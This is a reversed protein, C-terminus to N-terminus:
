SQHRCEQCPFITRCLYDFAQTSLSPQMFISRVKLIAAMFQSLGIVRGVRRIRSDTFYPLVKSLTANQSFDTDTCGYSIYYGRTNRTPIYPVRTVQSHPQLWQETHMQTPPMAQHILYLLLILNLNQFHWYFDLNPIQPVSTSQTICSWGHLTANGPLTVVLANM